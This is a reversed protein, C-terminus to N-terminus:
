RGVSALELDNLYHPSEDENLDLFSWTPEGSIDLAADFLACTNRCFAALSAFREFPTRAAYAAADLRPDSLIHASLRGGAGEEDSRRNFTNSCDLLALATAWQPAARVLEANERGTAGLAALTACDLNPLIEYSIVDTPICDFFSM